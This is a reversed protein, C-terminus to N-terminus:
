PSYPLTFQAPTPWDLVPRTCSLLRVKTRGGTADPNLLITPSYRSRTAKPIVFTAL